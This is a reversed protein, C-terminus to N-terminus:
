LHLESHLHSVMTVFELGPKYNQPNFSPFELKVDSHSFKVDSQGSYQKGTLEEMVTANVILPYYSKYLYEEVRSQRLWTHTAKFCKKIKDISVRISVKGDIQLTVVCYKLLTLM